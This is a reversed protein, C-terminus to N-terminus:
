SITVPTGDLLTLPQFLRIREELPESEFGLLIGFAMDLVFVLEWLQTYLTTSALAEEPTVISGVGAGPAGAPGPDGKPGPIGQIGQSGGGGGVSGGGGGGVIPTPVPGGVGLQTAGPRPPRETGGLPGVGAVGPGQQRRELIDAWLRFTRHLEEPESTNPLPFHADRRPPTAPTTM